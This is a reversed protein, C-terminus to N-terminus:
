ISIQRFKSLLGAGPLSADFNSQQRNELLFYEKGFRVGNPWLRYVSGFRNANMTNTANSKVENLYVTGDSKEADVVDVWGQDVKCWASPHCPTNGGGGWSGGSMLCWSGIVYDVKQGAKKAIDYLDPWGFLLHGFEHACVGVKADEPVTLFSFVIKGGVSREGPLIWKCSWIDNKNGTEDAGQGAHAVIFADVYGPARGHNDYTTLDINAAKVADLAHDALNRINPVIDPDIGSSGNAYYSM